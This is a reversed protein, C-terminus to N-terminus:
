CWHAAIIPDRRIRSPKVPGTTLLVSVRKDHHGYHEVLGAPVVDQWARTHVRESIFAQDGLRPMTAYQVMFASPNKIFEAYLASLDAWWWMLCSAWVLSHRYTDRWGIVYDPDFDGALGDLPGCIVNDLDCYLVPGDFLGPRFLEIKSWWGPWDHELPIRECPVDMDSLCVFRHPATLHRAFGDRLKRVWEADYMGGSRLVCAVTLDAGM